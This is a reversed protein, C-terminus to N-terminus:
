SPLMRTETVLAQLAARLVDRVPAALDQRYDFPPGEDMYIRQAIEMQIAHIGAAPNGCSRTIYGGKFRGNLVTTYDTAAQCAAFVADALAPAATAGDATGVNFDPLRGEFFRPVESKISHCDYVAVAPHTARLRAIQEHLADHYPKWYAARRLEVEDRDPAADRYVLQSDFLTTPCLETNDAGPYLPAGSPDRNLDVVTRAYRAYLVTAGLEIHAFDYLREVHWDTDPLLLAAETLREEVGPALATGSHPISLILPADGEQLRYVDTSM